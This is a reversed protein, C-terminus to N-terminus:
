VEPYHLAFSFISSFLPFLNVDLGIQCDFWADTHNILALMSKHTVLGQPIGCCLSM